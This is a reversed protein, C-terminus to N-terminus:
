VGAPKRRRGLALFVGGMVVSAAASAALADLDAGTRALQGSAAGGAATGGAGGGPGPTVVTTVPACNAGSATSDDIATACGSAVSGRRAVASGSSVSNDDALGSGSAVSNNTARAGGSTSPGSTQAGAPGALLGIVAAAGAIAIAM